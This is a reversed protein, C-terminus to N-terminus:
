EAVPRPQLGPAPSLINCVSGWSRFYMGPVSLFFRYNVEIIAPDYEVWLDSPFLIKDLALPYQETHFQFCKPFKINLAM